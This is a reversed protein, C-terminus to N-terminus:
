ELVVGAYMCYFVSRNGCSIVDQVFHAGCCYALSQTMRSTISSSINGKCHYTSEGGILGPIERCCLIWNDDADGRFDVGYM